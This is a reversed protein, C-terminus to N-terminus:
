RVSIINTIMQGGDLVAKLQWSGISLIDTSLNYIYQNSNIDYRFWNGNDANSVFLPIEDTGIVGDSIKAAFLQSQATSIYNNNVDTLQFKVPLTRGRNYIGTGNTKIPPLFGNSNYIVNFTKTLITAHGSNDTATIELINDGPKTLIVNQGGFVEEGNLKASISATGFINDVASFQIQLSSNLLYESNLTPAIIKTPIFAEVVCGTLRVVYPQDPIFEVPTDESLIITNGCLSTKITYTDDPQTGSEPVVSILYDGDKLLDFSAIEYGSFSETDQDTTYPKLEFYDGDSQFDNRTKSLVLGDPDAIILDVPSYISVSFSSKQYDVFDLPDLAVTLRYDLNLPIDGQRVEFHLHPATNIETNGDTEGVTGIIEGQIVQKGVYMTPDITDMHLYRTSIKEATSSDRKTVSGHNVWIWKGANSDDINDIKVITGDIPSKVPRQYLTKDVDIGYHGISPDFGQKLKGSDTPNIMQSSLAPGIHMSTLGRSTSLFYRWVNGDTNYYLNISSATADSFQPLEQLSRIVGESDYWNAPVNYGYDSGGMWPLEKQSVILDGQIIIEYGRNKLHSGYAIQWMSSKGDLTISGISRIGALKSDSAWNTVSGLSKTYAEKLTFIANPVIVYENDNKPVLPVNYAGYDILFRFSGVSIEQTDPIILNEQVVVAANAQLAGFGLITLCLGFFLKKM